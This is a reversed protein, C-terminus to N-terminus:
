GRTDELGLTAPYTEPSLLLSRGIGASARDAAPLRGGFVMATAFLRDILHWGAYAAARVRFAEDVPTARAALYADWFARMRPRLRDLERLGHTVVEDHSAQHGFARGPDNGIARPIGHVALYLWEGVFDGVDRAPDGVRLEEWDTLHLGRGTQLFQDLRLDGHVPARQPQAAEAERLRGLAAALDHDRQLLRWTELEGFTAATYVPLPLAGFRHVPPMPHTSTDLLEADVPLGHLAAVTEGAARCTADDFADDAALEAGSRADELYEYALLLSAPDSGLFRPGPLRAGAPGAALTEYAMIRDFRQRAEGPSIGVLRKVFVRLGSATPGSWNDNRGVHATVEDPLFDGAGLKRLLGSVEPFDDLGRPSYRARTPAAAAAAVLTGANGPM